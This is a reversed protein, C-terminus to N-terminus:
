YGENYNLDKRESLRAMVLLSNDLIIRNPWNQEHRYFETKEADGIGNFDAFLDPQKEEM